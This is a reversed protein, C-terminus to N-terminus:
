NQHLTQRNVKDFAQDTGMGGDLLQMYESMVRDLRPDGVKAVSRRDAIDNEM